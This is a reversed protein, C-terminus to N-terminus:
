RFSSAGGRPRAARGAAAAVARRRPARWGGFVRAAADSRARRARRRRRRGGDAREPAFRERTCRAAPRERTLREVIEITGKTRGATRIATASVAAGDASRGRARGPQGRGAPDGHDVEGKRTALEREPFSPRMVIDGLLALVAEFDEALCTCVLSFLHRTVTITLTIGRSDLEEAIEDASRTATGRDIVRSLLYTAGPADAPDCISGARM